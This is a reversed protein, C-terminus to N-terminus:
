TSKCSTILKKARRQWNDLPEMEADSLGGTNRKPFVQTFGGSRHENSHPKAGFPQPPHLIGPLYSNEKLRQSAEERTDSDGSNKLSAQSLDTLGKSSTKRELKEKEKNQYKEAESM